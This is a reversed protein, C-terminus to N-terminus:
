RESINYLDQEDLWKALYTSGAMQAIREERLRYSSEEDNKYTRGDEFKEQM